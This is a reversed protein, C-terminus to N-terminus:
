SWATRVTEFAKHHLVQALLPRLNPTRYTARAQHVKNAGIVRFM